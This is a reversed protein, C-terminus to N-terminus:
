PSITSISVPLLIEIHRVNTKRFRFYNYRLRPNLILYESSIQDASLSQCESLVYTVKDSVPLLIAGYRGVDHFEICCWLEALSPCFTSLAQCRPADQHVSAHRNRHFPGFQFRFYFELIVSTQKELDSITIDRGRISINRRFKTKSISVSMRFLRVAGLGFGSTFNCWLLRWRSFRYLMMLVGLIQIFNSLSTCFSMGIVTVHDFNYCSTSNLYPTRENRWVSMPCFLRSSIQRKSANQVTKALGIQQRLEFNSFNTWFKWLLFKFIQQLTQETHACLVYTGVKTVIPCFSYFSYRNSFLKIVNMRVDLCVGTVWRSSCMCCRTLPSWAFSSFEVGWLILVM